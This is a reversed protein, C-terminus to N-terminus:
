TLYTSEFLGMSFDIKNITEEILRDDIILPPATFINNKIRM